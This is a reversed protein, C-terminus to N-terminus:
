SAGGRWSSFGAGALLRHTPRGMGRGQPSYTPSAASQWSLYGVSAVSCCIQTSARVRVHGANLRTSPRGTEPHLPRRADRQRDEVEASNNPSIPNSDVSCRAMPNISRSPETRSCIPILNHLDTPGGLEWPVIHHIECREFAVDCDGFACCRYMARLARRQKRNANRITRGANFPVGNSDVIIPTIRGQCMLRRVSAPPLALGDSTECISHDHLEGTIATEADVILTVDAELPRQQHHGGGVLQGLAEAALQSRDITRNVFQPDRRAEGATINAEVQQDVAGFIQNALEPHFAFRGEIMGTAMNAKRSLFTDKRQRQNREMGQDRELRRIRDRCSRGFREPTMAAADALLEDELDFLQSTTDDDLKTTANALADVHEAGISGDGLAEGFSPAQEITKSRREKRKGEASSVGGCRTHLDAAPAGGATDHLETVRSTIHAEVADLWGRVQRAGALLRACGFADTDATDIGSLAVLANHPAVPTFMFVSYDFM